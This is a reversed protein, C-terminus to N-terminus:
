WNRHRKVINAVISARVEARFLPTQSLLQYRLDTRLFPALWLQQGFDEGVHFWRQLNRFQEVVCGSKVLKGNRRPVLMLIDGVEDLQRWFVIRETTVRCDDREM